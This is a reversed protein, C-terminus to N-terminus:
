KQFKNPRVVIVILFSAVPLISHPFQLEWLASGHRCNTPVLNVVESFLIRCDRLVDCPKGVNRYNFHRISNIRLGVFPALPARHVLRHWHEVRSCISSPVM